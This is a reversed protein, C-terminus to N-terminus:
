LNWCIAVYWWVFARVSNLCSSCFRLSSFAAAQAAHEDNKLRMGQITGPAFPSFIKKGEANGGEAGDEGDGCRLGEDLVM